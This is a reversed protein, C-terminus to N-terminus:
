LENEIGDLTERYNAILEGIRGPEEDWWKLQSLTKRRSGDPVRYHIFKAPVGGM